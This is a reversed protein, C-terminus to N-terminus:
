VRSEPCSEVPPFDKGLWVCTCALAGLWLLVNYNYANPLKGCICDLKPWWGEELKGDREYTCIFALYYCCSHLPLKYKGEGAAFNIIKNWAQKENVNRKKGPDKADMKENKQPAVRTTHHGFIILEEKLQGKKNDQQQQSIGLAQQQGTQRKNVKQWNCEGKAM